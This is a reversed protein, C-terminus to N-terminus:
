ELRIRYRDGCAASRNLEIAQGTDLYTIQERVLIAAPLQLDLLEAQEEDALTAEITSRSSALRLGYVGRLTAFLSHRALDHHLLGPCLKHPLYTVGIALPQDNGLRLRRLYVLEEGMTVGLAQALVTSAPVLAAELLRTSPVIGRQAIDEAFGVLPNTESDYKRQAVYLGKGAIAEVVGENILESIARRVTMHSMGYQECLARQSPLQDGSALEGRRIAGILTEKLQAYLPLISM